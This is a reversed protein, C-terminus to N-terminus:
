LSTTPRFPGPMQTPLQAWLCFEARNGITARLRWGGNRLRPRPGAQKCLANRNFSRLSRHVSRRAHDWRVGARGPARSGIRAKPPKRSLWFVTAAAAIFFLLDAWLLPEARWAFVLGMLYTFWTSLLIGVLIAAAYRHPASLFRYFRQCLLDGLAIALGLYILALM